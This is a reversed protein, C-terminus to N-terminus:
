EKLIPKNKIEITITIIIIVKIKTNVMTEKIISTNTTEEIKTIGTTIINIINIKNTIRIITKVMTRNNTEIKIIIITIIKITTKSINNNTEGMNNNM